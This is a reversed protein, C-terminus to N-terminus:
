ILEGIGLTLHFGSPAAFRYTVDIRMFKFIKSIAVGAETYIGPTSRGLAQARTGFGTSAATATVITEYANRYLFPIGLWLFLASRFNHEVSVQLFRDGAFERVQAGRLVGIPAYSSSQTELSFLRQVPPAGTTIGVSAHVALYAGFPSRNYFTSIRYQGQATWRTFNFDGGWLSRDAVEVGLTGQDVHIINFPIPEQGFRVSLGVSRMTGPDIAPNIRYSRSRAFLSFETRKVASRHEENRLDLRINLRRSPHISVWLRGGASSYYDFYDNKYFLATFINSFALHKGEDAVPTVIRAAEVGASLQMERDLVLEAGLKAEWRRDSFGYGAAASLLWRGGLTDTTYKGGLFGGQVRNFRLDTYQLVRLFVSSDADALPGTPQFKKDLTQTSDLTRYAETQEVTLPLVEREAWFTSDYRKVSSDQQIRRQRFLSDPVPVNVQYEYISSTSEFGIRPIRIFPIDIGVDLTTRIDVPLWYREQMPAFQQRTGLHFDTILPFVFAENPRVDVSALVFREDVVNVTGEFLPTIRSQPRLRIVFVTNGEQKVTRELEFRYYDFADPSTFGVFRYSGFSIEDDYFNTIGGVASFNQNVKINETQRKQRIVERLTDGKRWFGSSYTEAIMAIASDSRMVQRTFAEFRYSALAEQWKKKG